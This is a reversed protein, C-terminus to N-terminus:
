RKLNVYVGLVTMLVGTMIMGYNAGIEIKNLMNKNRKLDPSKSILRQTALFMMSPIIFTIANGFVAGTMSVVFGVDKLMLAMATIVAFLAVTLITAVTAGRATGGSPIGLLDLAGERLASFMFPYGTLLALGTALRSLVALFDSGAYNNLVFGLTSGGFTLYGTSMFLTFVLFSTFFANFIVQNFRKMSPNKLESFFKPANFHAIYSSSLTSLLVFISTTFFSGGKINFSPKIPMEKYFLGGPIYSGDFYRILM